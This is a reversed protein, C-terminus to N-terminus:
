DYKRFDPISYVRIEAKRMGNRIEDRISHTLYDLGKAEKM